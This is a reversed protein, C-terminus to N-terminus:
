TTDETLRKEPSLSGLCSRCWEPWVEGGAAGLGAACGREGLYLCTTITPRDGAAPLGEAISVLLGRYDDRTAALECVRSSNEGPCLPAGPAPCTPCKM